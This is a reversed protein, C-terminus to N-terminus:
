GALERAVQKGLEVGWQDFPNIHWVCAQAFVKHEYCALLAGLTEADLAAARILTNPQGGPLAGHAGPAADVQGGAHLVRAQASGNANLAPEVAATEDFLIIDAPLL